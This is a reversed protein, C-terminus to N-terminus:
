GRESPSGWYIYQALDKHLFLLMKGLLCAPLQEYSYSSGQQLSNIETTLFQTYCWTLLLLAADQSSESSLIQVTLM